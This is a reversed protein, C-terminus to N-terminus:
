VEDSKNAKEYARDVEFKTMVCFAFFLGAYVFLTVIDDSKYAQKANLAIVGLLLGRAVLVYLSSKSLRKM